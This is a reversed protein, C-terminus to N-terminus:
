RAVALFEKGFELAAECLRLSNEIDRIRVGTTNAMMDSLVTHVRAKSTTGTPTPGTTPSARRMSGKSLIRGIEKRVRDDLFDGQIFEANENENFPNIPLLDVGLVLGRRGVKELAV